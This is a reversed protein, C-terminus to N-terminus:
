SNLVIQGIKQKIIRRGVSDVGEGLVVSERGSAREVHRAVAAGTGPSIPLGVRDGSGRPDDHRDGGGGQILRGGAAPVLPRASPPVSGGETGAAPRGRPTM